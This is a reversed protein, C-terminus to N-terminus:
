MGGQRGQPLQYYASSFHESDQTCNPKRPLLEQRHESGRLFWLSTKADLHQVIYWPFSTMINKLKVRQSSLGLLCFTSAMKSVRVEPGPTDGAKVSVKLSTKDQVEM